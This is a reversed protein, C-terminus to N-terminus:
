KLPATLKLKPKAVKEIKEALIANEPCVTICVHCNDCTDHDIIFHKVGVYISETPCFSTCDGCLTCKQTITSAM